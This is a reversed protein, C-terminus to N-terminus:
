LEIDIFVPTTKNVVGTVFIGLKDLVSGPTQAFFKAAGTFIDRDEIGHEKLAARTNIDLNGQVPIGVSRRHQVARYIGSMAVQAMLRETPQYM